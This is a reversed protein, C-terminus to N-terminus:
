WQRPGIGRGSLHHWYFNGDMGPTLGAFPLDGNTINFTVLTILFGNSTVNFVTGFEFSGGDFTTGYFSGDAGQVLADQPHGGDNGGTFSYLVTPAIGPTMRFITGASNLGGTQTTGYLNGDATQMLGNPNGGDNGGSFAHLTTMTVGSGTLTAVTLTAVTSTVSGLANSVVVAYSGMDGSSVNALSLTSTGSGSVNRQDSLDSGNEQWRYFLQANSATGVTFTAVSGPLATQNSPQATIMPPTIIDLNFQRSQAFGDNLNTFWVTATYSGAILNSAAANLSVTVTGVPLNSAVTGNTPSVNHWAATNGLAWNLSVPGFTSVLYNQTSSSFPGGAAGVATVSAAPTVLLADPPFVLASILNSGAPTGWGTCLDYGPVAFFKTPSTATTNNGTTIDHFCAGYGSGQGILSLTPNLFGVPPKGAAAAQQNALAAFGAWLPAAASTGGITGQQGNNAILWIVTDALCAVDPINRKTTSGRNGSMSLGRQWTPISYSTSIGGGSQPWTTESSWAGGAGTTLSTGGVVTLLACRGVPFYGSREVSGVDGSAQFM